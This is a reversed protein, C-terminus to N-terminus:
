PHININIVSVMVLFLSYKCLGLPDTIINISVTILIVTDQLFRTSQGIVVLYSFNTDSILGVATVYRMIHHALFPVHDSRYLYHLVRM